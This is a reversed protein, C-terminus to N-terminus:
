VKSSYLHIHTSRFMFKCTSTQQAATYTVVLKKTLPIIDAREIKGQGVLQVCIKASPLNNAPGIRSGTSKKPIYCVM